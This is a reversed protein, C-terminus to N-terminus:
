CITLSTQAWSNLTAAKQWSMRGSAIKGELKTSNRNRVALALRGPRRPSPPLSAPPCFSNQLIPSECMRDSNNIGAKMGLLGVQWLTWLAKNIRESIKCSIVNEWLLVKFVHLSLTEFAKPLLGVAVEEFMNFTQKVPKGEQNAVDAEHALSQNQWCSVWVFM